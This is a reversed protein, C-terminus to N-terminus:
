RNYCSLPAFAHKPQILYIIHISSEVRESSCATQNNRARRGRDNQHAQHALARLAAFPCRLIGPEPYVGRLLRPFGNQRQSRLSAIKTSPPSPFPFVGGCGWRSQWPVVHRVVVFCTTCPKLGAWVWGWAAKFPQAVKGGGYSEQVVIFTLFPPLHSAM